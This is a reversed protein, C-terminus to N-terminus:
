TLKYNNCMKIILRDNQIYQNEAATYVFDNDSYRIFATDIAVMWNVTSNNIPM